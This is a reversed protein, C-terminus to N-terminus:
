IEKRYEYGDARVAKGCQRCTCFDHSNLECKGDVIHNGNCNECERMKGCYCKDIKNICNSLNEM